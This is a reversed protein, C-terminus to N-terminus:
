IRPASGPSPRSTHERMGAPVTCVQVASHDGQTADGTSNYFHWQANLKTGKAPLEFGADDPLALNTGGVAWGALLTAIDGILTPLPAVEWYGDNDTSDTTFLLWHHLVAQNDFVTGYRTGLSGTEWPVDYYFQVYEEGAPITFKCDDVSDTSGHVKLEYCTEGPLPTLPGYHRRRRRGRVVKDDSRRVAACM